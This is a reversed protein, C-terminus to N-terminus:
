VLRVRVLGRGVSASGGIQLLNQLPADLIKFLQEPKLGNRPAALLPCSFISEAPVAEEYWLGGDAVTKTDDKLRIRAVVETATGALFGFIDDAVIGFRARFTERWGEDDFVAGAIRTAVADVSEATEGRARLDLEELYVRAPAGGDGLASGSSVAIEGEGPESPLTQKFDLGASRHDREWRRLALPCSVWALTGHYSRVPLCLLRADSFWLSGAGDSANETKPGFAAYFLKKAASADEGDPECADRLVGKISSGPLYPWGFVTERAVPLDIVDTSQGTGSHIPSFAHLYLMRAQM